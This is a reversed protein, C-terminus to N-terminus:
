DTFNNDATLRTTEHYNIISNIVKLATKLDEEGVLQKYILNMKHTENKANLVFEKGSSTLSLLEIRKDKGSTTSIIFGKEELEKISRSITQKPLMSNKAIESATSGEISINFMVPMYSLKMEKWIPKIHEHTWIDLQKRLNFTIRQLNESGNQEFDLLEKDIDNEIAM